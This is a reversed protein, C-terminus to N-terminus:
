KKKILFMMDSFIDVTMQLMNFMDNCEFDYTNQLVQNYDKMSNLLGETLSEMLKEGYIHM